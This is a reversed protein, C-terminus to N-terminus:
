PTHSRLNPRLLVMAETKSEKPDNARPSAVQWAMFTGLCSVFPGIHCSGSAKHWCGHSHVKKSPGELGLHSYDLGIDQICEKSLGQVLVIWLLWELNSLCLFLPHHSMNITELQSIQPTIWCCIVFVCVSTSLSVKWLLICCSKDM